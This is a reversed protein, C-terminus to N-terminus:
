TGQVSSVRFTITQSSDIIPEVSAIGMGKSAISEAFEEATARMRYLLAASTALRM